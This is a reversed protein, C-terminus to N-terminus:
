AICIDGSRLLRSAFSYDYVKMAAAPGPGNDGLRVTRGDPLTVELSGHRLKSGFGLALRVMRPLGPLLTDVTESTVSIVERM